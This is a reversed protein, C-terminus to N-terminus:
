RKLGLMVARVDEITQRPKPPPPLAPRPWRLPRAPGSWRKGSLAQVMARSSAAIDHSLEVLVAALEREEDWSWELRRALSSSPPLCSVLAYLRRVGVQDPGFCCAALDLGYFRAFDAEIANWHDALLVALGMATDLAPTDARAM